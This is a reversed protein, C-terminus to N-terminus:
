FYHGGAALARSMTMINGPVLIVFPFYLRFFNVGDSSMIIILIIYRVVSSRKNYISLYITALCTMCRICIKIVNNNRM